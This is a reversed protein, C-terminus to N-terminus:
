VRILMNEDQIPRPSKTDGLIMNIDVTPFSLIIRDHINKPLFYRIDSCLYKKHSAIINQEIQTILM